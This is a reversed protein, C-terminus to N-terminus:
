PYPPALLIFDRGVPSRVATYAPEKSGIVFPCTSITKFCKRLDEIKGKNKNDLTASKEEQMTEKRNNYKKM